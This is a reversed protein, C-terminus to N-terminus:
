SSAGLIADAVAVAREVLARSSGNQMEAILILRACDLIALQADITRHLTAILTANYPYVDAVILRGDEDRVTFDGQESHWTNGESEDRLTELKNIADELREVRTKTPQEPPFGLVAKVMDIPEIRDSM